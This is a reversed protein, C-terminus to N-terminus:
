TFSLLKWIRRTINRFSLIHIGYIWHPHPLCPNVPSPLSPPLSSFACWHQQNKQTWDSCCQQHFEAKVSFADRAKWTRHFSFDENLVGSIPTGNSWGCIAPFLPCFPFKAQKPIEKIPRWHAAKNEHIQLPFIPEKLYYPPLTCLDLHHDKLKM